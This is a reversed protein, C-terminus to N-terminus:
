RAIIRTHMNDSPNKRNKEQEQERHRDPIRRGIEREPRELLMVVAVPVIRAVDSLKARVPDSGGDGISARRDSRDLGNPARRSPDREPGRLDSVLREARACRGGLGAKSAVRFQAAGGVERDSPGPRELGVATLVPRGRLSSCPAPRRGAGECDTAGIGALM